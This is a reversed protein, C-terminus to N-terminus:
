PVINWPLSSTTLGSPELDFKQDFPSIAKSYSKAGAPTNLDILQNADGGPALAFVVPAPAAAPLAPDAPHRHAAM